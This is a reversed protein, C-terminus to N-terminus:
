AVGFLRCANATTLEAIEEPTRDLIHALHEAVYSVYAPENRKGRVPHPALYPCDTEILLRDLPVTRLIPALHTVNKFSIPGAVGIYLGVSLAWVAMQQDALFCHLVGGARPPTADVVRRMDEDSERNHLIVPLNLENALELQRALVSQQVDRPSFDYHYDLGIEGIAVVQPFTSLAAIEQVADENIRWSNDEELIAQSAEHAHFGAAAYLGEHAQALALSAKSSVLDSGCVMMRRVGASFARAIVDQRDQEFKSSALHTHSDFLNM